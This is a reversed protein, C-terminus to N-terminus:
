GWALEELLDQVLIGSDAEIQHNENDSVHWLENSLCKPAKGAM